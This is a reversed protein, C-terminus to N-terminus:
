HAKTLGGGENTASNNSLVCNILTGYGSGGGDDGAINNSLVCDTLDSHCSGGGDLTSINDSLTCDILTGYCSGGGDSIASNNEIICDRVIGTGGYLNVGGGSQDFARDGLADNARGNQLTFGILKGATMYVCRVYVIPRMTGANRGSIITNATSGYSEVTINKTIVVRNFSSYAPPTVTSGVDYTGEHVMVIDGDSAADVADQITHAAYYWTKYLATPKTSDQWVYLTRAFAGSAIMLLSIFLAINKM